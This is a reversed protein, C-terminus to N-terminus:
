LEWFTMWFHISEMACEGLFVYASDAYEDHWSGHGVKIGLELERENIREIERITNM